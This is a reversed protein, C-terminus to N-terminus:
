RRMSYRCYDSCMQKPNHRSSPSPLGLGLVVIATNARNSVLMFPPWINVAGVGLTNAVNRATWKYCM